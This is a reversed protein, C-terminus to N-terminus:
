HRYGLPATKEYYLDAEIRQILRSFITLEAAVSIDFDYQSNPFVLGLFGVVMISRVTMHTEVDSM